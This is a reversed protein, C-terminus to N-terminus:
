AHDSIAAALRPDKETGKARTKRHSLLWNILFVIGPSSFIVFFSGKPLESSLLLHAAYFSLLSGITIGGGLGGPALRHDDRRRGRSPLLPGLDM